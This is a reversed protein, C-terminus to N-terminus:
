SLKLSLKSIAWLNMSFISPYNHTLIESIYQWCINELIHEGSGRGGSATWIGDSIIAIKVEVMWSLPWYFDDRILGSISAAALHLRDIKINDELSFCLQSFIQLLFTLWFM